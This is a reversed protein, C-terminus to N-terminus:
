GSLVHHSPMKICFSVNPSGNPSHLVIAGAQLLLLLLLLLLEASSNRCGSVVVM